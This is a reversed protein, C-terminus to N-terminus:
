EFFRYPLKSESVNITTTISYERPILHISSPFLHDIASIVVILLLGIISHITAVMLSALVRSSEFKTPPASPERSPNVRFGGIGRNGARVSLTSLFNMGVSSVVREQFERSSFKFFLFHRVLRSTENKGKM